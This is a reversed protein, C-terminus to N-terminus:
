RLLRTGLSTSVMLHDSESRARTFLRGSDLMRANSASSGHRAGGASVCRTSHQRSSAREFQALPPPVLRHYLCGFNMDVIILFLCVANRDTKVLLEATSIINLAM